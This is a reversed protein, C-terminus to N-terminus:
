NKEELDNLQKFSERWQEGLIVLEDLKSQLELRKNELETEDAEASVFIPAALFVKARTFPKPIRLKDWSNVTWFSKTEIIMPVVPVGTKKALTIAGPKAKCRPGKPGDVTFTTSLGKQMLRAMEALAASGGRTSSGRVVGFGLRQAARAIYEGDFSRSVMVVIGKHRWFYSSLLIRDHWLASITAPFESYAKEFNGWKEDDFDKWGEIEFRMTKGLLNILGYFVWDALRIAIKQRFSYKSLDAFRFADSSKQAKKPKVDNM